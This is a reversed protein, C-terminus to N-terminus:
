QRIRNYIKGMRRMREIIPDTVSGSTLKWSWNGETTGPKNMRYEPGYGLIDQIPFIVLNAVSRYAQRILTWHFEDRDKIGLYEM